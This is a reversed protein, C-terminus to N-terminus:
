TCYKNCKTPNKRTKLNYALSRSIDCTEMKKKSQKKYNTYKTKRTQKKIISFKLLEM